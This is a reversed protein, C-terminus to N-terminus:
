PDALVARAARRGSEIAGEVYGTCTATHEGALHLRGHPRRLVDWFAGVQGPGYAAYAGGYRAHAGWARSHIAALPEPAVDLVAAVQARVLEHRENAPMAGLLRGGDGGTYTIIIGGPGPQDVTAEYVRQVTRDTTVWSADPWDRRSYSTLVKTITGYGLEAIAAGLPPALPPDFTVRRLAPLATTLVIADAHVEGDDDKGVVVGGPGHEVRVVASGWLVLGGVDDAMAEALASLGGQVRHARGAAGRHLARQQALFLASLQDPECAFEAQVSRTVVFHAVAGLALDDMVDSVSRADLAEARPHSTPDAPDAIGEALADVADDYRALDAATGHRLDVTRADLREGGIHLTTRRRDWVRGAGERELSYRKLLRRAEIHHSDIWEAGSEAVQGSPFGRTRVRGGPRHGAEVVVVEVGAADLDLACALGAM